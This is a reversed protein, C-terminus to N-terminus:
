GVEVNAVRDGVAYVIGSADSGGIHFGREDGADRSQKHHRVVDIPRGLAAWVNNYNIGAAKVYVLADHPGIAPVPVVEHKFAERPEGYHEQRIVMAHMRTPIHGLRPHENLDYLDKREDTQM